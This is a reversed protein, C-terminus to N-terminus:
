RLAEVTETLGKLVQNWLNRRRVQALRRKRALVLRGNVRRALVFDLACGVMSRGGTFMVGNKMSM